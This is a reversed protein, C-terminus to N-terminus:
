RLSAEFSRTPEEGVILSQLEKIPTSVPENDIARRALDIARLQRATFPVPDGPLVECRVLRKAIQEM